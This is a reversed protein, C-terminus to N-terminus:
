IGGHMEMVSSKKLHLDMMEQIMHIQKNLGGIDDLSVLGPKKGGENETDGEFSLTTTTSSNMQYFKATGPDDPQMINIVTTNRSKETLRNELAMGKLDLRLEDVACTTELSQGGIKRSKNKDVPQYLEDGSLCLIKAITFQCTQGFYLLSVTNGVM